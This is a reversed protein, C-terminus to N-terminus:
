SDEKKSIQKILDKNKFVWPWIDDYDILVTKNDIKRINDQNADALFYHKIDKKKGEIERFSQFISQQLDEFDGRETGEKMYYYGDYSEIPALVKALPTDKLYKWVVTEMTSNEKTPNKKEFKLVWNPRESDKFVYKDTGIGLCELRHNKTFSNTLMNNIKFCSKLNKDKIMKISLILDSDELMNTKLDSSEKIFKRWNEIILKM